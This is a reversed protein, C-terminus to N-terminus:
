RHLDDENNKHPYKRGVCFLKCSRWLTIMCESTRTITDSSKTKFCTSRDTPRPTMARLSRCISTVDRAANSVLIRLKDILVLTDTMILPFNSLHHGECSSYDKPFRLDTETKDISDLKHESPMNHRDLVKYQSQDSEAMHENYTTNVTRSYSNHHVM